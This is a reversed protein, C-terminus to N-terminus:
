ATEKRLDTIMNLVVQEGYHNLIAELVEDLPWEKFIERDSMASLVDKISYLEVMERASFNDLIDSEHIDISIRKM